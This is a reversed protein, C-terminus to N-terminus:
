RCIEDQFLTRLLNNAMDPGMESPIVDNAFGLMMTQHSSGVVACSRDGVRCYSTATDSTRQMSWSPSVDSEFYPVLNVLDVTSGVAGGRLPDLPSMSEFVGWFEYTVDFLSALEAGRSQDSVILRGGRDLYAQMASQDESSIATVGRADQNFIIVAEANAEDAGTVAERITGRPHYEFNSSAEMAALGSEIEDFLGAYKEGGGYYYVSMRDLCADPVFGSGGAGNCVVFFDMDPPTEGELGYYVQVGGAECGGEGPKLDQVFFVASLGDSGPSGESGEEGNCVPFEEAPDGVEFVWGGAPCEDLDAPRVDLHADEGPSGDEGPAGNCVEHEEVPDGSRIVVGGFRCRESSDVYEVEIFGSAGDAGNCLIFDGIWGDTTGYRVLVGGNGAECRDDGDLIEVTEIVASAGDSGSTGDAGNCVEHSRLDDADFGYRIEVGGSPCRESADFEEIELIPTAGPPGTEGEPGDAGNCLPFEGSLGDTTGYRVLVGGNGAECRADGVPIEETEIVASAGDSGSTGDAGNCVEHSRLDDADFGYRIEVGGSPCRESADFAEIELIPTAGPPGTEGPPGELGNCLEITTLEDDTDLGFSLAYGGTECREDGPDIRVAEFVPRGESGGSGDVGNCIEVLELDEGEYGYAIVIGGAPCEDTTAPTVNFVANRGDSGDAGDCLLFSDLDEGAVGYFVEVGSIGLGCREDEATFTDIDFVASAGAEGASGTAGNCVLETDPEEGEYGYTILIGGEDCAGDPADTVTLVAGRGDVGDLGDCVVFSDMEDRSDGENGFFVETGGAPCRDDGEEIVEFEYIAAAGATGDSGPAGNCVPMETPSSEDGFLLVVGGYECDDEDADVIEFYASGPSGARGDAGNCLVVRDLDDPDDGEYGYILEVGGKGEDCRDDDDGFEEVEFWAARGDAGESGDSGDCVHVTTLDDEDYGYVITVGGDPCDGEDAESVTLIADLGDVGDIGDIGNCLLFSELDDLEDGEHGYFVEVGSRGEGCREDEAEFSEVDFWAPRGEAGDCVHVTELDEEDYGYVITVGGDPCDGEDAESVTLIADLGDVGDIGDIGNCVYVVELDDPDDDDYGYTVALGGSPCNEDGEDLVEVDLITGRGDEGDASNCLYVTQHEDSDEGELGYTIAVGGHECNPDGVPLDELSVFATSGDQGDAGNFITETTGDPCSITTSGDENGVVTCPVPTEVCGSMALIAVITTSAYSLRTM